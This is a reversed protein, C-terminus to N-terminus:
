NVGESAIAASIGLLIARARNAGPDTQEPDLEMARHLYPKAEDFRGQRLLVEGLNAQVTADGSDIAAAQKLSEEAEALRGEILHVAGLGAWGFYSKSDV